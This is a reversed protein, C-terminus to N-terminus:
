FANFVEEANEVKKDLLPFLYEHDIKSEFDSLERPMYKLIHHIDVIAKYITILKKDKLIQALALRAESHYNQRTFDEIRKIDKPLVRMGETLHKDIKDVISM